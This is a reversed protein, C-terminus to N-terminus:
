LGILNNLEQEYDTNDTMGNSASSQSPQNQPQSYEAYADRAWLCNCQAANKLWGLGHERNPQVIKGECLMIGLAAQAFVDGHRAAEIIQNFAEQTM